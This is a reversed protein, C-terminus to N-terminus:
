APCAHAAPSASGESTAALSMAKAVRSCTSSIAVRSRTPSAEAGDQVGTQSIFDFMLLIFHAYWWQHTKPDLNLAGSVFRVSLTYIKLVSNTTLYPCAFCSIQTHQVWCPAKFGNQATLSNDATVIVTESGNRCIAASIPAWDHPYNRAGRDYALM